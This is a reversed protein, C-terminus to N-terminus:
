QSAPSASTASGEDSKGSAIAAMAGRILQPSVGAARGAADYLGRAILSKVANSRDILSAIFTTPNQTVWAFGVPDRNGATAVRQGVADMAGMLKSDRANLEAVGPVKAALEEKLGRALGKQAEIGASSVQGYKKGIQQYTGRKMAQAETPLLTTGPHGPHKMFEDLVAKIAELDATPNVQRAHQAAVEPVHSAVASKDITATSDAIKTGIAANTEDFLKQLKALGGETVNVGEDLLTQALARGSTRYEKVVSQTPKLAKQMLWPAARELGAGAARGVGQGGLEYIAQMAGESGIGHAAEGASAPAKAGRLRDVLQRLAEGAGGGLAAGGIAGPVGGVGMGAVTGGIGGVIGGAAGGLTPLLASLRDIATSPDAGQAGPQAKTLLDRRSREVPTLKALLPDAADLSLLEDDTLPDFAKPQQAM